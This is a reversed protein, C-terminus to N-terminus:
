QKRGRAARERLHPIVINDLIPEAFLRLLQAKAADRALQPSGSRRMYTETDLDYLSSILTAWGLIEADPGTASLVQNAGETCGSFHNLLARKALEPSRMVAEPDRGAAVEAELWANERPSLRPLVELYRACEVSLFRAVILRQPKSIPPRSLLALADEFENALVSPATAIASFLLLAIYVLSRRARLKQMLGGCMSSGGLM